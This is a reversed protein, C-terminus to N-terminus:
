QNPIIYLEMVLQEVLPEFQWNAVILHIVLEIDFSQQKM